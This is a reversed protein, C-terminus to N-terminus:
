SSAPVRLNWSRASVALSRYLGCYSEAMAEISFHRVMKTRAKEGFTALREPGALLATLQAALAAPTSLDTILGDIGSTIIHEHGCGLNALAPIGSSMAELAVNSLGENVSPIALLDLAQYCTRPDNQFGLWHIRAAHPSTLARARTPSEESGGAGAIILHATPFRTAIEDFAELLVNHRKFPGFRGVVGIGLADAPLGLALRAARRDGPSFRATDVGNSVVSIKEAPFGLALLEERMPHSVTHVARCTRYLWRRQRLRRPSLEDATLQSHEGQLLVSRRGGYTALSSYILAGLNHSHLLDPRLRAVHAALRLTARPSFAGAKGLVTVREPHPLREAFAGRRELCAIHIEFGRPELARAMNVVGNEMGGSELSNVIHLIKM